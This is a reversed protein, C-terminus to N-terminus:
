LAAAARQQTSRRLMQTFGIRISFFYFVEVLSLVSFGMFLGLLGGCNAIFDTVGYLESRRSPIFQNDKFYVNLSSMRYGVTEAFNIKQAQFYAETDLDAQSIEADFSLDTCSPLCDCDNSGSDTDADDSRLEMLVKREVLEMTSKMMCDSSGLACIPTGETRPMHLSVCSCRHLTLNSLCELECNRQTYTRFYRLRREYPFYCQRRSPAYTRLADSTNLMHPHVAVMVDQGLPVRLFQLSTQPVEGPSHLLVKFGQIPGKCIYDINRSYVGMVVHLGNIPGPGLSRVPHTVLGSGNRFGLEANWDSPRRKLDENGDNSRMLSAVEKSYIDEPDLMNFTFCLGDETMQPRFIESPDYSYHNRWAYFYITEDMDPAVKRLFEVTKRDTLNEGFDLLGEESEDCVLSLDYFKKREDQTLNAQNYYADTYNFVERQTKTESCITVAPFPVDWVPTTTEALTVIVPTEEWKLWVRRILNSCLALSIAFLFLWLLREAVPRQVDGVYRLGHMSTSRCYESVHAVCRLVAPDSQERPQAGCTCAREVHPAGAELQKESKEGRTM